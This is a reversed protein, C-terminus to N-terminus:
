EFLGAVDAPSYNTNQTLLIYENRQKILDAYTFAVGNAIFDNIILYYSDDGNEKATNLLRQIKANEEAVSQGSVFGTKNNRLLGAEILTAIKSGNDQWTSAISQQVQSSQPYYTTISQPNDKEQKILKVAEDFREFSSVGKDDLYSNITVVLQNKRQTQKNGPFTKDIEEIWLKDFRKNVDDRQGAISKAAREYYKNFDSSKINDSEKLVMDPTLTGNVDAAILRMISSVDSDKREPKSFFNQTLGDFTLSMKKDIRDNGTNTYKNKIALLDTETANGQQKLQMLEYQMNLSYDGIRRNDRADRQNWAAWYSDELQKRETAPLSRSQSLMANYESEENRWRSHLSDKLAPAGSTWANNNIKEETVYKVLESDTMDKVNKGARKAADVFIDAGNVNGFQVANSWLMEKVAQSRGTIDFDYNDKLRQAAPDYYQTKIYQKQVKAFGEPDKAALTKWNNDFEDSGVAGTLAKAYNSNGNSELWNLFSNVSGKKSALQYSGYSKGGGDGAGSSIVGPGSAEYKASVSGTVDGAIQSSSSNNILWDLGADPDDPFLELARDLLSQKNNANNYENITAMSKIFASNDVYPKAEQMLQRAEDFQNNAIKQMILEQTYETIQKRNLADIYEQPKNPFLVANSTMIDNLGEAFNGTELAKNTANTLTENSQLVNHKEIQKREYSQMTDFDSINSKEVMNKFILESKQYKIGSNAYVNNQIQEAQQRFYESVDQADGLQKNTYIDQKLENIQKNYENSAAIVRQADKDEQEKARIDLFRNVSGVIQGANRASAEFAVSRNNDFRANTVNRNVQRSNTQIKM